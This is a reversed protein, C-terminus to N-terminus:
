EPRRLISWFLGVAALGAGITIIWSSWDTAAETAAPLLRESRFQSRTWDPPRAFRASSFDARDHFQADAFSTTGGFRTREFQASRRFEAYLFYAERAFVAGSFTAAGGFVSGSFGTGQAFRAHSFSVDRHFSVELFEGLGEFVAQDFSVSGDFAAHHFRTHPGFQTGKFRTEGMFVSQVFLMEQKLTAGSWDVSDAFLMRSWDQPAEFVTGEASVPGQAVIPGQDQRIRTAIRGRVISRRIALPGPIIRGETIAREALITKTRETLGGLSALPGVPLQDLLMDGLVVVNTLDIGKGARISELLAQATVARAEREALTCDESLRRHFTVPDSGRSLDQCMAVAPPAGWLGSWLSCVSAAALAVFPWPFLHHMPSGPAGCRAPAM